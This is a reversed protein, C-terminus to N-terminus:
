YVRFKSGSVRFTESKKRERRGLSRLQLGQTVFRHTLKANRAAAVKSFVVLLARSRMLDVGEFDARGLDLAVQREPVEHPSMVITGALVICQLASQGSSCGASM